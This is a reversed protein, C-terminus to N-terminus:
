GAFDQTWWRHGREDIVCGVGIRKFVPRLINARHGPSRMWGAMVEDPDAYNYAVNEGLVDDQLGARRLAREWGRHSLRREFAMAASRTAAIRALNTDTGLAQLGAGRRAENVRTVVGSTDSAPCPRSSLADAGANALPRGDAAACGTAVIVCALVGVQTARRRRQPRADRRTVSAGDDILEASGDAFAVHSEGHRRAAFVERRSKAAMLSERM